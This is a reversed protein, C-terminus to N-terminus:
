ASALSEIGTLIYATVDPAPDFIGTGLGGHGDSSYYVTTDGTGAVAQAISAVAEDIVTRVHDTLAPYGVGNDGTPIGLARPPTRCQYPRIVANGGGPACGQTGDPDARHAAWQTENDNFIFFARAYQPQDIMWGFDGDKGAGRFVSGIVKISSDTDMEYGKFM